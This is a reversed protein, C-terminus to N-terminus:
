WTEKPIRWSVKHIITPIFCLAESDSFQHNADQLFAVVNDVVDLCRSILNPQPEHVRISVYKLALDANAVGLQQRETPSSGYKDEGNALSQYFECMVGLGSIFDNVANHDHSFLSAFLEKTVYPEFQAQLGEVVDKCIPGCEVIWRVGDKALRAKKVDLSANLFPSPSPSSLSPTATAARTIASTALSGPKKLGGLAPKATRAATGEENISARSDPRPITGMPLKRRVVGSRVPANSTEATTEAVTEVSASPEPTEAAKPVAPAPAGASKAPKTAAPAPAAQPAAAAATKLLPVVTSRSAPKLASTQQMMYDFGCVAVIFPLAAQAAKRVDTNRDDLSSVVSPAWGNLDLSPSPPHTKFWESVWNLLSSKQAPNQSELATSIGPVMSELGECAEAIATLTQLGAARINAKQDSLVTAVPLAFIRTHKEFPKGMGTAIRGVVDLALLQVAKNTDTVRAKLIQGIEGIASCM